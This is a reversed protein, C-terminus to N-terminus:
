GKMNQQTRRIKGFTLCCQRMFNLACKIRGYAKLRLVRVNQRLDARYAKWFPNLPEAASGNGMRYGKAKRPSDSDQPRLKWPPHAGVRNSRPHWLRGSIGRLFVRHVSPFIALPLIPTFIWLSSKMKALNRTVSSFLCVNSPPFYYIINPTSKSQM